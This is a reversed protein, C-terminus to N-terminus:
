ESEEDLQEDDKIVKEITDELPNEWIYQITENKTQDTYLVSHQGSTDVIFYSQIINQKSSNNKREKSLLIM